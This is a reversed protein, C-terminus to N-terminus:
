GGKGSGSNYSPQSTSSGGKGGTPSGSPGVPAQNQAAPPQTGTMGSLSDSMNQQPSTSNYLGQGIGQQSQGGGYGGGKGNGAQQPQQQNWGATRISSGNTQDANQAQYM